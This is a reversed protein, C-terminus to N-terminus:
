FGVARNGTERRVYVVQSLDLQLQEDELELTHWRAGGDDALADILKRYADDATRLALVQGGQFGIDTRAMQAM